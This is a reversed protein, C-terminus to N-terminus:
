GDEGLGEREMGHNERVYQTPALFYKGEKGAFMERLKAMMEEVSFALPDYKPDEWHFHKLREPRRWYGDKYAALPSEALEYLHAYDNHVLILEIWDLTLLSYDYFDCLLCAMDISCGYFSDVQWSFEPDYLVSFLVGPPIMQNIEISIIKPRYKSLIRRAVYFDYGDIDVDIADVDIPVDNEEFIELINDPTAFARIHVIHPVNLCLRGYKDADPEIALGGWGNSYSCHLVDLDVGDSAGINVCYHNPDPLRRLRNLYRQGVETFVRM